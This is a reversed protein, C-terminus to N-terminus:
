GDIDDGGAERALVDADGSATFAVAGDAAQLAFAATQKPFFTCFSSSTGFSKVTWSGDVGSTYYKRFVASSGGKFRSM